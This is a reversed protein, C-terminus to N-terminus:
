SFSYPKSPRNRQLPQKANASRLIRLRLVYSLILKYILFTEVKLGESVKMDKIKDGRPM